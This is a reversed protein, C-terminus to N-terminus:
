LEEPYIEITYRDRFVEIIYHYNDADDYVRLVVLKTDGAQATAYTEAKDTELLIICEAIWDNIKEDSIQKEGVYEEFDDPFLPLELTYDFFELDEESFEDDFTLYIERTEIKIKEKEDKKKDEENNNKQPKNFDM